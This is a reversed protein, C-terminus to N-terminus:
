EVYIEVRESHEDDTVDMIKGHFGQKVASIIEEINVDAMNPAFKAGMRVGVNVLSMPINVNVKNAGSRVDIVRVRFWRAQASTTDPQERTGAEEIAGLLKAADDVTLQGSEVMKLIQIREEAKGV